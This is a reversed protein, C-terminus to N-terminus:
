PKEELLKLGSGTGLLATSAESCLLLGPECRARARSGGDGAGCGVMTLAALVGHPLILSMSVDSGARGGFGSPVHLSYPCEWM